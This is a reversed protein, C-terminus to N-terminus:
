PEVISTKIVLMSPYSFILYYTQKKGVDHVVNPYLSIYRSVLMPVLRREVNEHHTSLERIHTIYIVSVFSLHFLSLNSFSLSPSFFFNMQRDSM